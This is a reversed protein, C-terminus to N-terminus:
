NTKNNIENFNHKVIKSAAKLAIQEMFPATEMEIFDEIEQDTIDKTKEYFAARIAHIEKEIRQSNENGITNIFKEGFPDIDKNTHTM